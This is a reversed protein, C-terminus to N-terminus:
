NIDGFVIPSEINIKDVPHGFILRMRCNCGVTKAPVLSYYYSFKKTRAGVPCSILKDCGFTQYDNLEDYEVEMDFKMDISDFDSM